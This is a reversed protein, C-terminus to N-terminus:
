AADTDGETDTQPDEIQFWDPWIECPHFGFRISWRDAAYFAHMESCVATLQSPDIDHARAANLMNGYRREIARRLARGDFRKVSLRGSKRGNLKNHVTARTVGVERAIENHSFGQGRLEFIKDVREQSLPPTPM